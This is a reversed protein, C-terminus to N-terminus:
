ILKDTLLRMVALLNVMRGCRDKDQGATNKGIRNPMPVKNIDIGCHVKRMYSLISEYFTKPQFPGRSIM